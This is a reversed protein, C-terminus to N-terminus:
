KCQKKSVPREQSDQGDIPESVHSRKNGIFSDDLAYDDFESTIEGIQRMKTSKTSNQSIHVFYYDIKSDIISAPEWKERDEPPNSDNTPSKLGTPTIRLPEMEKAADRLRNFFWGIPLDPKLDPNRYHVWFIKGMENLLENVDPKDFNVLAM